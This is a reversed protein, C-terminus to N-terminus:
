RRIQKGAGAYKIAEKYFFTLNVVWVLCVALSPLFGIDFILACAALIGASLACVKNTASYARFACKGRLQNILAAQLARADAACLHAFLVGTEKDVAAASGFIEKGQHRVDLADDVPLLADLQLRFDLNKAFICRHLLHLPFM